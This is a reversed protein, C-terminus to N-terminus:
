HDVPATSPRGAARLREGADDSCELPEARVLGQDDLGALRDGDQRRVRISGADEDRRRHDNGRPGVLVGEAPELVGAQRHISLHCGRAPEVDASLPNEAEGVLRESGDRISMEAPREPALADERRAEAPHSAGLTEGDRLVAAAGEDDFDVRQTGFAAEAVAPDVEDGVVGIRESSV